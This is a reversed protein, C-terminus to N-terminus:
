QNAGDSVMFNNYQSVNQQSPIETSRM